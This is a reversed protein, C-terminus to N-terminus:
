RQRIQRWKYMLRGRWERYYKVPHCIAFTVETLFNSNLKLVPFTEISRWFRAWTWGVPSLQNDKLLRPVDMLYMARRKGGGLRINRLAEPLRNRNQEDPLHNYDHNEHVIQISPTADVTVWGQKLAHFIMWNDWM